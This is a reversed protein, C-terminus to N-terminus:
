LRGRSAFRSQQAQRADMEESFVARIMKIFPTMDGSINIDLKPTFQLLNSMSSSPPGSVVPVMPTGGFRGLVDSADRLRGTFILLGDNAGVLGNAVDDSAHSLADFVPQLTLLLAADSTMMADVFTDLKTQIAAGFNVLDTTAKTMMDSLATSTSGVATIVGSIRTKMEDDAQTWTARLEAIRAKSAADIARLMDTTRQAAEPTKGQLEYLQSANSQVRSVIDNIEAATTATKLQDYLSRQDALLMDIQQQPNDRAQDFAIGKIQDVISRHVNDAATALDALAQHQIDYYETALRILEQSRTLQEEPSAGAFGSSLTATRENIKRLRDTPSMLADLDAQKRTDLAAFQDMVAQFQDRLNKAFNYIQTTLNAYEDAIARVEAPTKAGALEGPDRGFRNSSGTIANRRAELIALQQSPTAQDMAFGRTTDEYSKKVAKKTDAIEKLASLELQYRQAIAANIQGLRAVQDENTLDAFGKGLYAIQENAKALQDGILPSALDAAIGTKQAGSKSLFEISDRMAVFGTVYDTIFKFFATPDLTRSDSAFLSAIKSEAVGLATLGGQIIPTFAELYLKPVEVNIFQKLADGTLGGQMGHFKSRLSKLIPDFDFLKGLTTQSTFPSLTGLQGDKFIASAGLRQLNQAIAIPFADFLGTVAASSAAIQSNIAALSASVDAATAEGSGTIGIKGGSVSVTFKAKDKGSLFGVVGGVLGGIVLGWPGAIAGAAAGSVVGSIANSQKSAGAQGAQYIGYLAAATQVGAMEYQARQQQKASPFKLTKSAPDYYEKGQAMNSWRDFFPQVEKTLMGAMMSGVSDVFGHLANKPGRGSFVDTLGQRMSDSMSKALDGYMEKEAEIFRNDYALRADTNAKYVELYDAMLDDYDRSNQVLIDKRLVREKELAELRAGGAKTDIAALEKRNRKAEEDEQARFASEPLQFPKDRQANDRREKDIRNLEQQHHKEEANIAITKDADVQRMATMKHQLLLEETKQNLELDGLNLRAKAIDRDQQSMSNQLVLKATQLDVQKTEDQRILLMASLASKQEEMQKRENNQHKTLEEEAMDKGPRITVGRADFVNRGREDIAPGISGPYQRSLHSRSNPDTVPIGAFFGKPAPGSQRMQHSVWSSWLGAADDGLSSGNMSVSPNWGWFDNVRFKTAYNLAKAPAFSAAKAGRYISDAIDDGPQGIERANQERFAKLTDILGGSKTFAEITKEAATVVTLIAAAVGHIAQIFNENFTARGKEDVTVIADRLRLIDATLGTTASMTGEGLAQQWADKLNSLAGEYTNVADKGAQGFAKLRGILYDYFKGEKQLEIVRKQIEGPTNGLDSELAYAFKAIRANANGQLAKQLNRAMEGTDMTGGSFIKAGHSFKAILDVMKDANGIVNQPLKQLIYPMSMSMVEALQSYQLTTSLAAVRLKQQMEVAIGSAATYRQLTDLDRGRADSMKTFTAYLAQIGIAQQQLMSNFEVGEKIATTLVHLARYAGVLAFVRGVVGTIASGLSAVGPVAGAFATNAVVGASRLAPTAGNVAAALQNVGSTTIALGKGTQIVDIQLQLKM